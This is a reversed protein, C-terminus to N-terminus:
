RRRRLAALGALCGASLVGPSPTIVLTESFFFSPGDDFPGCVPPQNFSGGYVVFMPTSVGFQQGLASIDGGYVLEGAELATVTWTTVLLPSGFTVPPILSFQGADIALVDGGSAVPQGSWGLVPNNWAVSAADSAVVAAGSAFLDANVASLYSSPQWGVFVAVLSATASEGVAISTRDFSIHLECTQGSAGSVLWAVAAVWSLRTM